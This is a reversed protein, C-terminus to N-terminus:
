PLEGGHLLIRLVDGDIFCSGDVRRHVHWAGCRDCDTLMEVADLKARLATNEAVVRDLARTRRALTDRVQAFDSVTAEDTEWQEREEPTM